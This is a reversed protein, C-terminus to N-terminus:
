LDQAAAWPDAHELLSPVRLTGAIGEKTAMDGQDRGPGGTGGCALLVMAPRCTRLYMSRKVFLVFSTVMM